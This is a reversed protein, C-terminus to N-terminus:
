QNKKSIKEVQRKHRNFHAQIFDLMQYINIRGIAPQKFVNKFLIDEPLSELLEKMKSRTENWEAVIANYKVNEPVNGLVDAPATLGIPLMFRLKLLIIKIQEAISTRKLNQLDLRKKSVYLVSLSEAKNLHYFIQSVSWKGPHPSAELTKESKKKLDEILVLRSDELRSFKESLVKNV